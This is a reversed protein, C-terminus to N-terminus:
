SSLSGNAVQVPTDLFNQLVPRNEAADAVHIVHVGHGRHEIFDNDLGLIRRAKM